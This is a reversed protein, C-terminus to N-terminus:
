KDSCRPVAELGFPNLYGLINQIYDAEHVIKLTEVPLEYTLDSLASLVM